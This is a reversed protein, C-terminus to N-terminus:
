QETEASQKKVIIIGAASLLLIVILFLSSSRAVTASVSVAKPDYRMILDHEGAPLVAGRLIWDARFVPVDEGTDEIWAKM